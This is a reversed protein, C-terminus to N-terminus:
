RERGLIMAIAERALNRIPYRLDETRALASTTPDNEAIEQLLPINALSGIMGLGRIATRRIGSDSATIGDLVAEWIAVKTEATVGDSEGVLVLISLAGDRRRPLDSNSYLGLAIPVVIEGAEAIQRAWQSYPHFPVRTMRELHSMVGIDLIEYVAPALEENYYLNYEERPYDPEVGTRLFERNLSDQFEIERDLLEFLANRVLSSTLAEPLGVLKRAADARETWDSSRAQLILELLSDSQAREATGISTLFFVLISAVIARKPLADNKMRRGWYPLVSTPEQRAKRYGLICVPESMLDATRDITSISIVTRRNAQRNWALRRVSLGRLMEFTQGSTTIMHPAFLLLMELGVTSVFYGRAGFSDGTFNRKRGMVNWSISM